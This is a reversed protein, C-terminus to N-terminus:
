AAKKPPDVYLVSDLQREYIKRKLTRGTPDLFRKRDVDFVIAHCLTPAWEWRIILLAHKRSHRLLSRLQRLKARKVKIGLQQLKESAAEDVKESRIGPCDYDQPDSTPHLLSHVEEYSKGLLMAVCATFCGSSHVQSVHRLSM